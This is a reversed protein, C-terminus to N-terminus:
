KEKRRQKSVKRKLFFFGALWFPVSYLLIRCNNDRVAIGAAAFLFGFWFLFFGAKFIKDCLLAFKKKNLLLGLYMGVGAMSCLLFPVFIIKPSATRCMFYVLLASVTIATMLKRLILGNRM